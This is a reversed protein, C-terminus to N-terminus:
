NSKVADCGWLLCWVGRGVFFSAPNKVAGRTPPCCTNPQARGAQNATLREEKEALMEDIERILAMLREHDLEGVAEQCLKQWRELNDGTM